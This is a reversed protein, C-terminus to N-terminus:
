RRDKKATVISAGLIAQLENAERWLDHAEPTDATGSEILLELWYASGEAEFQSIGLKATFEATSRGRKGERYNAGVSTGSRRLQDGLVHGVQTQPLGGIYRIVGLAFRKTRVSLDEPRNRQQPDM